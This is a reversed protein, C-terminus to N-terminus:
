ANIADILQRLRGFHYNDFALRLRPLFELEPENSEEPAPGGEEISGETLIDAFDRNLEDLRGPPLSRSLRIVLMRSREVPRISHYRRYFNRIERCTEDATRVLRFLSMDEPSILGRALMSSRVFEIWPEWYPGRDGQLLIVPKPTSRGTQLLTLTEFAEDMTGFGGPMLVIADSEKVFFLKRTFFYRYNILKPDGAIVANAAQEFPLQINLGISAGPGAGEHAAGMIGHGAGTIVMFGGQALRRGLEVGLQYDPSGEQTRASGFVSVKRVHRYQAFLRFSHRMEKVATRLLKVNRPAAGDLVLKGATVLVERIAEREAAPNLGDLFRDLLRALEPDEIDYRRLSGDMM